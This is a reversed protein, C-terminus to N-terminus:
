KAQTKPIHHLKEKLKEYKNNAEKVIRKIEELEAIILKFKQKNIAPTIMKFYPRGGIYEKPKYDQPLYNYIKILGNKQLIKIHKWLYSHSIGLKRELVAIGIDVKNCEELIRRRYPNLLLGLLKVKTAM